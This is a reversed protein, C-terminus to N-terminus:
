VQIRWIRLRAKIKGVVDRRGKRRMVQKTVSLPTGREGAGTDARREKNLHGGPKNCQTVWKNWDLQSSVCDRPNGTSLYTGVRVTSYKVQKVCREAQRRFEKKSFLLFTQNAVGSIPSWSLLSTTFESCGWVSSFEGEVRSRNNERVKRTAVLIGKVIYWSAQAKGVNEESIVM